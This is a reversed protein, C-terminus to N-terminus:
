RSGALAELAAAHSHYAVGGIVWFIRTGQVVKTM